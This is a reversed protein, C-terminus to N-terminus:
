NLCNLLERMKERRRFSGCLGCFRHSSRRVQCTFASPLTPQGQSASAGFGVVPLDLGFPHKGHSITITGSIKSFKTRSIDEGSKVDSPVGSMWFSDGLRQWRWDVQVEYDAGSQLFTLAYSCRAIPAKAFVAIELCHSSDPAHPHSNCARVPVLSLEPGAIKRSTNCMSDTHIQTPWICSRQACPDERFQTAEYCGGWLSFCLM